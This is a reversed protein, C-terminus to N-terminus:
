RLARVPQSSRPRRREAIAADWAADSIGLERAIERAQALSIQDSRVDDLKLARGILREFTDRSFHEPLQSM